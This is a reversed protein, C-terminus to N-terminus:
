AAEKKPTCGIHALSIRGFAMDMVFRWKGAMACRPSMVRSSPPATGGASMTANPDGHWDNEIAAPLARDPKAPFDPSNM